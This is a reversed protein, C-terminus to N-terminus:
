EEIVSNIRAITGDLRNAVTGAAEALAAYDAKAEALAAKLRRREEGEPALKACAAELRSVAQELHRAADEVKGM